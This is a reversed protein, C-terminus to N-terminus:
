TDLSVTIRQLGADRLAEARGALEVGNTTLTREVLRPEAALLRLLVEVDRRILPEGGTLRVRDVGADCFATVLQGLEEYSLVDSRPLWAYHEEPMCYSCRLNCRDTVSIRLSRLPRRHLDHVM